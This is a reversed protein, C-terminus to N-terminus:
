NDGGNTYRLFIDELDGEETKFDQVTLGNDEIKRLVATKYESDCVVQLRNGKGKFSRIREDRDLVGAAKRFNGSLRLSMKTPIDLRDRLNDVSDIARLKGDSIIGVRDAVEQVNPLIHSSFFVTGGKDTYYKVLRKVMTIATPDLGSTPEDLVLLPPNGLLAQALAIKQAMGKSYEGIKKDAAETMGVQRLLRDVEGKPANRLKAFFELTERGTLNSYLKMYEPLYGVGLLAKRRQKRVSKGMIRINGESPKILGLISKITTTKGAGNPGLFGFVEGKKIELNVDNVALFNGYRKTLGEIRIMSGNNRM